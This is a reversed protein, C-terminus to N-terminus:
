LEVRATPKGICVLLRQELAIAIMTGGVALSPRFGSRKNM